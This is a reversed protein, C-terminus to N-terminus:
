YTRMQEANVPFRDPTLCMNSTLLFSEALGECFRCDLSLFSSHANTNYTKERQSIGRLSVSMHNCRHEMYSCGKLM